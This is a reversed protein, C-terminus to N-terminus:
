EVPLIGEIRILDPPLTFTQPFCPIMNLSSLSFTAHLFRVGRYSRSLAVRRRLEGGPGVFVQNQIGDLVFVEFHNPIVGGTSTEQLQRTLLALGYFPQDQLLMSRGFQAFTQEPILFDSQGESPTPPFQSLDFTKLLQGRDIWPGFLDQRSDGNVDRQASSLQSVQFLTGQFCDYDTINIRDLPDPEFLDKGGVLVADEELGLPGRYVVTLFLDAANTPLHSESFDFVLEQFGRTLTVTQSESVAFSLEESIPALSNEILDAGGLPQRYQVVARMQGTGRTDEDPTANRVKFRLKTFAGTNGEQFAALGYVYRAPPAIEIRGRFFYDLLGASYGIARPLLLRAYDEYVGRDLIFGQDGALLSILRETFTGEAVLRFDTEGDATKLFYRRPKGTGPETADFGEGLSEVRPFLFDEFITDESLFNASSYEALGVNTGASPVAAAQEPDITDIIRAIPIPALPNPSLGLIAPDFGKSSGILQDFLTRDESPIHEVFSEFGEFFAHPDNRTHAPVAADQVLHILQGLARFTLALQGERQDRTPATLGKSFNERADQWTFRADSPQLDPSQGWLISSSGVELGIRLGAVDWTRLPNHFHNRFRLPDDERLSGLSIWDIATNVKSIENEIGRLVNLQTKLFADLDSSRIARASLARHTEIEFSHAHLGALLLFINLLLIMRLKTM